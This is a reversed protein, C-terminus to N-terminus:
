DLSRELDKIFRASERAVTEGDPKFDFVEVSIWGRYGSDKLQRLLSRFDYDGAGPRQGDLENLHVHRIWPQWMRFLEAAPQKEGATNHTDIMSKLGPRDIAKVIEIAEELTTVVNCLHPALPELLITVGRSAAIPAMRALGDVLRKKAEPVASAGAAARQKASGLVMVGGEGLDAALDILRRFYSWSQERVTSDATTLHLGAPAKLFSHVGVYALGADSMARRAQRREDPSLAAPDPGLHAPEIEMGAYGCRSAAACAAAFTMGQFTESCVALRLGPRAKALATAPVAWVFERRSVKM